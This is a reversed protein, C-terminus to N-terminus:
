HIVADTRLSPREGGAPEASRMQSSATRAPERPRESRRLRGFPRTRQGRSSGLGHAHALARASRGLREAAVCIDSHRSTAAPRPVGRGVLRHPQGVERAGALGGRADDREVGRRVRRNLGDSARRRRASAAARRPGDRQGHQGVFQQEVAAAALGSGREALQGRQEVGMQNALQPQAAIQRGVLPVREEAEHRAGGSSMRPWPPM